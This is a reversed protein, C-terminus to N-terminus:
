IGKEIREDNWDIWIWRSEELDNEILNLLVFHLKKASFAENDPSCGKFCESSM